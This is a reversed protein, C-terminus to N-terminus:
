MRAFCLARSFRVLGSWLLRRSLPNALENLRLPYHLHPQKSCDFFRVYPLSRGLAFSDAENSQSAGYPSAGQILFQLYRLFGFAITHGM